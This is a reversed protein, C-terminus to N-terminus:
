VALERALEKIKKEYEKYDVCVNLLAQKKSEYIRLRTQYSCGAYKGKTKTM